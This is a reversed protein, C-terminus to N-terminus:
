SRRSIPMAWTAATSPTWPAPRGQERAETIHMGLPAEEEIEDLEENDKQILMLKKGEFDAQMLDTPSVAGSSTGITDAEVECVVAAPFEVYNKAEGTCSSEAIFVEDLTDGVGPAQLAKM